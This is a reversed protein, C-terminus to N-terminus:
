RAEWRDAPDLDVPPTLRRYFRVLLEYKKRIPEHQKAQAKLAGDYAEASAIESLLEDSSLDRGGKVRVLRYPLSAAAIGRLQPTANKIETKATGGCATFAVLVAFVVTM